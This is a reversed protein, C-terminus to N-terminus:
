DCILIFFKLSINYFREIFIRNLERHAREVREPVHARVHGGVHSLM